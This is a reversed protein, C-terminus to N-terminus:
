GTPRASKRRYSGSLTAGLGSCIGIELIRWRSEALRTLRMECGDHSDPDSVWIGTGKSLLVLGTVDGTSVNPGRGDHPHYSHTAFARFLFWNGGIPQIFLEGRDDLRTVSGTPSQLSGLLLDDGRNDAYGAREFNSRPAREFDLGGIWSHYAALICSKRDACANRQALWHTQGSRKAESSLWGEGFAWAMARDYASLVPDSCITAETETFRGACAFSPSSKQMGTSAFGHGWLAVFAGCALLTSIMSRSQCNMSVM